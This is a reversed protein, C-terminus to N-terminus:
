ALIELKVDITSGRAAKDHAKPNQDVVVGNPQGGVLVLRFGLKESTAVAKLWSMTRLDPVEIFGATTSPLTMSATVFPVHIFRLQVALYASFGSLFLTALLICTTIISAFSRHNRHPKLHHVMSVTESMKADGLMELARALQSGDPFRMGPEKELCRLIIEELAAPISPNFQGPPEPQDQIHQMAVVVPSNGDFPPHGTLMEYMVIGLAYVDAAPSVIEGQAQEPAFYQVTGLTMGSTTLREANANKYLSVIGFDTLKISGDIGILVNQPKVDRHVIGRRHAAGLGLAIDHAIIIARDVDLVDHSSLYSGLAMNSISYTGSADATTTAVTTSGSTVTVTAEALPLPTACTQDACALVTGSITFGTVTLTVAVSQRGGVASGTSDTATITITGSYTGPVLSAATVNVGFTSGSGGDTGSPTPLVLWASSASATWTVPRSCTGTEGFTVNQTTSTAQGQALSFALTAPTPPSLVCPPLVTLTVTLTQASGQVAVGSADSAAITVHTTYTGALLSAINVGVVISGSQGTGLITGKRPSMTLWSARPAVSTNWTVPWVCSGTGTFLVTQAAPNASAGQVASFSLASSSPPSLTCPSQMVLDVVITQPSGPAPIGKADMGVLTIQGVYNGPTLQATNVHITVQGSQGPVITGGSPSAALWVFLTPMATAHWSLPSHGNNAITVVQGTPSPQGQIISFNLSLPSASMIPATPPAAQVTVKAMVTLTSQGFVFSLNAYYPKSSAALGGANVSASVLTTDNANIQGSGPTVSLWPATSSSKWFLPTGACSPTENLSLSQNVLTKQGAVVTFTLFGTSTVLGCYPQVVVAVNVEQSSDIAGNAAFKLKGTYVGPLPCQSKVNVALILSGGSPVTGSTPSVGLWPCSLGQVPDLSWNLPRSGPNSVTLTQQMAHQEGNNANFSLLAPSVALVPGANPPLPRVTMDVEIHQPPSVNSSITISSHYNGPKLGIRQVALSIVEQQSFIGQSPAVLLWSADSNASWSISGGGSNALTFSRITNTGVIDAGMDLPTTDILLHAPHTIGEGTIQLNASATAHSSADEAVILHFGPGWNTDIVLSFTAGGLAGTMISSNGNIAIPEQIDHTLVVRTSPWFHKLTANVTSGPSAANASLILTPFGNSATVSHHPHNLAVNLLIGDVILAMLAFIALAIFAIRLRSSHRRIFPIPFQTTSIGDALARRMDEEEISASEASTPIRRSILPDTRNAWIDSEKEETDEELWPWYDPLASDSDVLSSSNSNSESTSSIKPLPTSERRIDASIDVLPSLRSVRSYLRPKRDNKGQDEEQEILHAAENLRTVAQEILDPQATLAPPEALEDVRNSPLPSTIRELPDGQVGLHEPLTPPDDSSSSTAQQSAYLFPRQRLQYRLLSRCEECFVATPECLKSCRLCQSM